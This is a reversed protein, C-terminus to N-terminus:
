VRDKLLIVSMFELPSMAVLCIWGDTSLVSGSQPTLFLPGRGPFERLQGFNISSSLETSRGFGPGPYYGPQKKESWLSFFFNPHRYSSWVANLIRWLHFCFLFFADCQRSIKHACTAMNVRSRTVSVAAISHQIPAYTQLSVSAHTTRKPLVM